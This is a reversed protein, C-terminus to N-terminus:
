TDTDVSFWSQTLDAQKVDGRILMCNTADEPSVLLYNITEASLTVAYRKFRVANPPRGGELQSKADANDFSWTGEADKGVEGKANQETWHARHDEFLELTRTGDLSRMDSCLLLDEWGAVVPAKEESCAGLSASAALTLVAGLRELRLSDGWFSKPRSPM